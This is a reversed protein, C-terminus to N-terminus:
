TEPSDDAVIPAFAVFNALLAHDAPRDVASFPRIEDAGIVGTMSRPRFAAVVDYSKEYAAASRIGDSSILAPAAFNNPPARSDTAPVLEVSPVGNPGIGVPERDVVECAAVVAIAPIPKLSIVSPPSIALM